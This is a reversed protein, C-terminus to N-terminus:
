PSATPRSTIPYRAPASVVTANTGCTTCMTRLRDACSMEQPMNEINLTPTPNHSQYPTTFTADVKVAGEAFGRGHLPM